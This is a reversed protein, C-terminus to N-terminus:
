SSSTSTSQQNQSPSQSEVNNALITIFIDVLFPDWQSGAGERLTNIAQAETMANRYPRDSIMAHYSDVLSIIRAPLPINEGQLGRPFGTGDWREHHHELIDCIERLARIPRLLEAGLVPHQNIVQREENTYAEKKNLLDASISLTGVDHLLSAVRVQEIRQQPLGMMKALLESLRATELHHIKNYESQSYLTTALAKVMEIVEPVLEDKGEDTETYPDSPPIFTSEAAALPTQFSLAQPAALEPPSSPLDSESSASTLESAVLSPQSITDPSSVTSEPPLESVHAAGYEGTPSISSSSTGPAPPASSPAAQTATATPLEIEAQSKTQASARPTKVKEAKPAVSKDSDSVQDKSTIEEYILDSATQVQNRGSRKSTYLAKDALDLLQQQTRADDPFIAVGMSATVSISINEHGIVEQELNKRIREAVTVAGELNIEPLVLLFEEGGYRVPFDVDRCDREISKAVARLVTDGAPHGYTDNIVKFHDVDIMIVAINRQYREALRVQESLKEQGTRHNLLGTLGDTTAQRQVRAYLRANIVGTAVQDAVSKLFVENDSNWEAELECKFGVLLGLLQEKDLIPIYFLSIVHQRTLTDQRFPDLKTENAVDNVILCQDVQHKSKFLDFTKLDIDFAKASYTSDSSYECRISDDPNDESPLVLFCTDLNFLGALEGLMETLNDRIEFSRRITNSIRHLLRDQERLVEANWRLLNLQQNLRIHNQKETSDEESLREAEQESRRDYTELMLSQEAIKREAQRFKLSSRVRALLEPDFCSEGLYDEAGINLGEVRITPSVEPSVLIIPIDKWRSSEKLVKCFTFSSTGQIENDLIILDIDNKGLAELIKDPTDAESVKYHAGLLRSFRRRMPRNSHAILINSSENASTDDTKTTKDGVAVEGSLDKQPIQNFDGLLNSLGTAMIQFDLLNQKTVELLSDFSIIRILGKVQTDADVQGSIFPVIVYPYGEKDTKDTRSNVNKDFARSVLIKGTQKAKLASHTNALELSQNHEDHLSIVVNRVEEDNEEISFTGITLIEQGSVVEVFGFDFGLTQCVHSRVADFFEDKEPKNELKSNKNIGAV